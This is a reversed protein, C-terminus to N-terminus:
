IDFDPNEWNYQNEIFLPNLWGVNMMAEFWCKRIHRDLEKSTLIKNV